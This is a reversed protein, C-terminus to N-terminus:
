SQSQFLSVIETCTTIDYAGKDPRYGVFRPFRLAYGLGGDARCATHVPSLTIEDARVSCTLEPLVWVEPFLNKHVEVNNMPSLVALEDCRIKLDKWEEDTLGTGVKALSQFINESENYIGVLFAGIGLKARKGKGYFYGLIVTDITDHIKTGGQHKLKIWTFNRKGSQYIADPRKVVLGELGSTLNDIFYQNLSEGEVFSREEIIFLHSDKVPVIETLKKRREAHTKDLYSEGNLFLLDFIYLRLPLKDQFFEVNHKRKRKVTEQFSLFMDAEDDYAMAEGEAICTEVPLRLVAEKLDPFMDSMQLMNRSYFFVKPHDADRKDVHIQIRFGDLKPQAVCPGLKEIVEHASSLREAAAPRIPIGLHTQMKQIVELGDNKLTYGVLGLDACVNYAVELDQRISKDGAYMWSLADLVTMDSCGLRMTQTIIRIVYKASVADLKKLLEVVYQQKKQVSGTGEIRAIQLLQEYVEEISLLGEALWHDQVVLGLDGRDRYWEQMQAEPVLLFDVLISVIGKNSIQFQETQYAPFLKGQSIYCIIKLEAATAQQFLGGLTKMKDLRGSAYEIAEFAQALLSFNM